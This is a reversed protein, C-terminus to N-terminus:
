LADYESVAERRWHSIHPRVNDLITKSVIKQWPWFEHVERSMSVEPPVGTRSTECPRPVVIQLRSTFQRAREQM